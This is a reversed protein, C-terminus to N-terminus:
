TFHREMDIRLQAGARVPHPAQPDYTKSRNQFLCYTRQSRLISLHCPGSSSGATLGEFIDCVTLHEPRHPLGHQLIRLLGATFVGHGGAVRALHHSGSSSLITTNRVGTMSEALRGSFSADAFIVTSRARTGILAANLDSATVLTRPRDPRSGRVPFGVEGDATPVGHGALYLLLEDTAADAMERVAALVDDVGPPDILRVCTGSPLGYVLPDSLLGALADAGRPASPLPPLAPDDYTGTGVLLARCLSLDRPPPAAPEKRYAANRVLALRGATNRDEKQPEAQGAAILRARVAPFVADLTLLRDQSAVGARLVGLLEGTFATHRKGEPSAAFWDAASATLVFLGDTDLDDPSLRGLRRLYPVKQLALGSYCCDLIVVKAHAASRQLVAAVDHFPVATWFSSRATTHVALRLETGAPDVLGHGAYYFLLLDEAEAAAADLASLLAAPDAPDHLAVCQAKTLDSRAPDTLLDYLAEINAKVAGIPPLDIDRYEATGALIM